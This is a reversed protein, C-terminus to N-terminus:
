VRLTTKLDRTTLWSLITLVAMVLWSYFITRGITVPGLTLVPITDMNKLDFGSDAIGDPTVSGFWVSLILFLVLIRAITNKIWVLSGICLTLAVVISLCIEVTFDYGFIQFLAAKM